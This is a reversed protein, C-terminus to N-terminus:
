SPLEVAADGEKASLLCVPGTIRNLEKRKQLFDGFLAGMELDVDQGPIVGNDEGGFPFPKLRVPKLLPRSILDMKDEVMEMRRSSTVVLFDNQYVPDGAEAAPEIDAAISPVGRLMAALIGKPFVLVAGRVAEKMVNLDGNLSFRDRDQFLDKEVSPRGGGSLAESGDPGIACAPEIEGM